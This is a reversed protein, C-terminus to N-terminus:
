LRFTLTIGDAVSCDDANPCHIPTDEKDTLYGQYHLVKPVEALVSASLMLCLSCGLLKVTNLM